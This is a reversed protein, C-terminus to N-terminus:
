IMAMGGNVHLTQGTVYGAGDSALYLAAAAIDNGTGMKKMPIAGMIAERQRDNLKGTMASEIFGPAICNVTVGRTAIEQALSKSLGIMGAKAACYNAQGPNGTVAVVSTINIIRGFRRATMTDIVAQILAIPTYMNANIAAMWDQQSWERFDGPKPGAANTVLIDPQGATQLSAQRGRETTIDAAVTHVRGGTEQRILQAAQDLVDPRRAVITIEVGERALSRACAFGLGQSAGCVLATKGRLQLDM